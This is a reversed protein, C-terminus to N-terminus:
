GSGFNYTPVVVCAAGVVALPVPEPFREGFRLAGGVTAYYGIITESPLADLIFVKTGGVTQAQGLSNRFTESWVVADSAVYGTFTAETYDTLVSDINPTFDNTYLHILAGVIEGLAATFSTLIAASRVYPVIVAM